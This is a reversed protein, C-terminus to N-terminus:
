RQSLYSRVARVLYFGALAGLSPWSPGFMFDLGSTSNLNEPHEGQWWSIHAIMAAPVAFLLFCGLKQERAVSGILLGIAFGIAVSGEITLLQNEIMAAAYTTGSRGGIPLFRVNRQAHQRAPANWMNSATSAKLFCNV